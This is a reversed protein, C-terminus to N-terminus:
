WSLELNVIYLITAYHYDQKVLSNVWCNGSEAEAPTQKQRQTIWTLNSTARWYTLNGNMAEALYLKIWLGITALNMQVTLVM